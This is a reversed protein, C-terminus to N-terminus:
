SLQKIKQTAKYVFGYGGKSISSENKIDDFYFSQLDSYYDATTHRAINAM